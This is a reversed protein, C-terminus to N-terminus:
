AHKSQDRNLDSLYDKFNLWFMASGLAWLITFLFLSHMGFRILSYIASSFLILCSGIGLLPIIPTTNITKRKVAFWLSLASIGYAITPGLAGLQQLQIQSGNSIILFLLYIFGEVLVCFMPINYRNLKILKKYGFLHKHQALIYVNWNNSFIIGYSGGLASCAIALHILNALNNGFKQANPLINQILTPFLYRYDPLAALTSGLGGYIMFQFLTTACIVFGYSYLVAKPANKEANEIKSSLSCAAEFGAIAFLVLPLAIPISSLDISEFSIHHPSFLYLGSLIGFLIPIIKLGFFWSQISSNTQMDLMNLSIFLMIIGGNFVLPPIVALIPIVQQILLVAIQTIIVASALKGTTYSWASVFGAYPHIEKSGFIYFGGSPYFTLLKTISMILPLMLLGVLLYCAAGVVGGYKALLTSNIFIGSGLMININIFVASRLSLKQHYSM